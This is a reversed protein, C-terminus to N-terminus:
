KRGGCCYRVRRRALLWGTNSTELLPGLVLSAKRYLGGEVVQMDKGERRGSNAHWRGDVLVVAVQLCLSREAQHLRIDYDAAHVPGLAFLLSLFSKTNDLVQM